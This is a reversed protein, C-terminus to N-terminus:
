ELTNVTTLAQAEVRFVKGLTSAIGLTTSLYDGEDVVWLSQGPGRVVKVPYAPTIPVTLPTFGATVRWSLQFGTFVVPLNGFGNGSRDGTCSADGAYTPDVIDLTMGHNRFRIGTTPRAPDLVPTGVACSTALDTFNPALVADTTTELCPNPEFGGGPLAGTRPNATPDCPPATLPIRGIQTPGAAPDKICSGNAAAIIPHVYGSLTGILSFAEHARLEYRQPANVCAQPPTVGEMCTGHDCVTGVVCDADATCTEICAGRGAARPARADDIQCTYTHPDVVTTIDRPNSSNTLQFGYNAIAQCKDNALDCGDLPENRLHHKRPLLVLQGTSPSPGITYRRLSTLYSKCANALRDAESALMCAGLGAVQSQPHVFCTYGASCDRDENAPDCGRLQVIDYPEVGADCFPGTNDVIRMAAADVSIVSERV